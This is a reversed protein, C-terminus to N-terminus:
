KLSDHVWYDETVDFIQKNPYKDIADHSFDYVMIKEYEGNIKYRVVVGIKKVESFDNRAKTETVCDIVASQGTTLIAHTTPMEELDVTYLIYNTTKVSDNVEVVYAKNEVTEKGCATVFLLGLALLVLVSNRM